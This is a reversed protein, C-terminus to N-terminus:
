RWRGKAVITSHLSRFSSLLNVFCFCVRVEHEAAQRFLDFAKTQNQQLGGGFYYAFGLGNLARVRPFVDTSNIAANYWALASVNDKQRGKTGEGKLYMGAAAVQAGPNGAIAARRFYDLARVHDRDFGRAGWYLLDGMAVMSAVEGNDAQLQQYQLMEDEDGRQAEEVVDETAASLKMMQHMPQEGHRHYYASARDAVQSYYFAALEIDSSVGIGHQYRRALSLMAGGTTDAMEGGAGGNNELVVAAHYFAVAHAQQMKHEHEDNEHSKYRQLAPVGESSTNRSSTSRSNLVVAPDTEDVVNAIQPEEGRAGQLEQQKPAPQSVGDIGGHALLLALRTTAAAHGSKAALLLLRHAISVDRPFLDEGLQEPRSEETGAGGAGEEGAQMSTEEEGEKAVIPTPAVPVHPVKLLTGDGERCGGRLYLMGLLYLAEVSGEEAAAQLLERPKSAAMCGQELLAADHSLALLASAGEGVVAGDGHSEEAARAGRKLVLLPNTRALEEGTSGTSGTLLASAHVDTVGTNAVAVLASVENAHEGQRGKKRLSRTQQRSATMGVVASIASGYKRRSMRKAEEQTQSQERPADDQERPADDVYHERDQDFHERQGEFELRVEEANLVRGWVKLAAVMGKAGEFSPDRGIRLPSENSLVKHHVQMPVDLVGDMYFSYTYHKAKKPLATDINASDASTPLQHGLVHSHNDFTFVVHCWRNLPLQSNSELGVDFSVESSVRLTLRNDNPM